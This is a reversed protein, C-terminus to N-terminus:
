DDNQTELCDHQTEKYDNQTGKCDNQTETKKHRKITMKYSKVTTKHRQTTMNCRKTITHTTKNTDRQLQQIYTHLRCAELQQTKETEKHYSQTKKYTNSQRKWCMIVSSARGM